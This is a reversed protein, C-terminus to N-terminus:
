RHIISRRRHLGHAKGLLGKPLTSHLTKDLWQRLDTLIPLSEKQRTTYTDDPSLEKIRKEVAYRKGILNIAVDAKGTKKHKNSNAKQADIFKRRAHAWCGLQTITKEACATNYGAYDDTQLYGEYGALLVSAVEGKRSDAYHFLRIPQM